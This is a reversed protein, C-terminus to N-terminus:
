QLMDTDINLGVNAKFCCTKSALHEACRPETENRRPIILLALVEPLPALWANRSLRSDCGPIVEKDSLRGSVFFAIENAISETHVLLGFRVV